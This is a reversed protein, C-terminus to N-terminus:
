LRNRGPTNIPATAAITTPPTVVLQTIMPRIITRQMAVAVPHRQRRRTQRVAM